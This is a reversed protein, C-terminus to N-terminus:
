DIPMPKSLKIIYPLQDDRTRIIEASRLNTWGYKNATYPATVGAADYMDGVSVVGYRDLMEEMQDLVAEADGRREFGIDEFDFRAKPGYDDRRDRSSRGGSAYSVYTGGTSSRKRDSRGKDGYVIMEIGDQIIDVIAKKITPVLVDMLVFSKVNRADESIFIDSLKSLESKKKTKVKGTVVKEVKKEAAEAEIKSRHSNAKYEPM